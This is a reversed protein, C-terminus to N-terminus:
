IKYFLKCKKKIKFFLIVTLQEKLKSDKQYAASFIKNNIEEVADIKKKFTKKKFTKKKQVNKKKGLLEDVKMAEEFSEPYLKGLKGVYRKKKTVFIKKKQM